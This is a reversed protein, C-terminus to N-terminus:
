IEYLFKKDLYSKIQKWNTKPYKALDKPTARMLSIWRCYDKIRQEMDNTNLDKRLPVIAWKENIQKGAYVWCHEWSINKTDGTWVCKSMFPDKAIEEKLKTPIPRM